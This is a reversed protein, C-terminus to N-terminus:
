TDSGRSAFLARMKELDDPTDVGFPITEVRAADMRMGNELARLQELKERKELVSPPLSVFRALAARRYTYLGIHHWHPGDGGPAPLRSFWLARATQQAGDFGVVAKVVNPNQLEDPDHIEAVLTAIDVDADAKLPKLSAHVTARDLAPLDGQLNVVTDHRRDPDAREVAEFIRDSGSPLNPDTLVAKGGADTIADAIEQEAAAVIVPGIDAEMGRRWVQVIMPVGSIDVLPKGPLRTSAMRAPIVLIPNM